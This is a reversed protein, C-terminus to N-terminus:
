PRYGVSLYARTKHRLPEDLIYGMGAVVRVRPIRVLPFPDIDLERQVGVVRTWVEFVEDTTAAWFYPHLSGVTLTARAVAIQPGRIVGLPLAPMWVRQSLIADDFLSPRVGGATFREFEGVSDGVTGYTLETFLGLSRVGAGLGVTGLARRWEVTGTKGVSGHVAFSQSFFRNESEQRNSIQYEAFVLQRRAADAEPFDVNGISAGVRYGSRIVDFDRAVELAITGGLYEVDLPALSDGMISQRSPDQTAWFLDAKLVPRYRRWALNLAAGNWASRDGYTGQAAWSLRGVPDSRSLLLNVASGEPALTGGPLIRFQSPGIGYPQPRAIEAVVFTDRVTAPLQPAAPSLEPPLAVLTGVQASDPHLRNLDIGRSHLRLFYISGDAPNPEPAVAMSTVRTVPFVEGTTLDIIELNPVGGRESVVVLSDGGPLFTADYRSAGDDPDIYQLPAGDQDTLAIRWRGAEQVAVAIQRANPSYRPRYFVRNPLGDHITEVTGTELDIRVLDCIGNRCRTAAATRGAPSPDADRVGEGRTVRHLQAAEWDWLFLDPQFTGDGLPEFRHVLVWRGGPLFRPAHHARGDVPLLTAVPTKPRPRWEIEPVDEPDLRQTRERARVERESEPEDETKWIVVRSPRDRFSLVTAIKGGDTSLAPDGTSWTRNQVVEGPALGAEQLLGEAALARRTVDVTFRGYLDEPTGGYVGAFADSFSRTRRASMRRWLHNLSEEGRQEVLWELFASGALYAMAGGLFEESGSMQRYTPLQGELAWQRLVAPRFVGHPRGSGTLRGEIYTAYGETVWRPSRRVVPGVNLPLLRWLLRQRPNRAPFTLHALHGYEHVALLDSWSSFHGIGSRPNPPTPWLIMAPADLLPLASGNSVNFPDVVLVTVRERPVNGVLNHVAAHVAELRTVMPLTWEAIEHPYHVVFHETEVTRWDAFPRTPLVGFQARLLPAPLLALVAAILLTKKLMILPAFGSM